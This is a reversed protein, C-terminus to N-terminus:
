FKLYFDKTLDIYQDSFENGERIIIEESQTTYGEKFPAQWLIRKPPKYGSAKVYTKRINTMDSLNLEFDILNEARIDSVFVLSGNENLHTAAFRILSQYNLTYGQRALSRSKDPSKLDNLFFPPNSIIIDFKDEIDKFDGNIIRLRDKWPSLNFNERCNRCANEDIEVATILANQRETRQAMILALIGSGSGVDLVNTVDTLEAWAGLMVSDTGVKMACDDDIVHFKKFSFSM